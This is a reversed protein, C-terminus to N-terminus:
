IKELDDLYTTEGLLKSYEGILRVGQAGDIIDHDVIFTTCLIKRQEEKGNIVKSIDKIGGIALNLTKDRFPVLWGTQGKMAMGMSTIGVTGAIKKLKFPNKLMKRIIFRRLFKPLLTYLMAYPTTGDRTLQEGQNIVKEQFNRIEETISKVSKSEVNRIVYTYPVKEETKTIIEIVVSIDVNDFVILKRRRKYTNLIKNEMVTQSVCKALWATFSVNFNQQEKIEAIKKLAATIDIEMLGYIQPFSAAVHFYDSLLLKNSSLKKKHYNNYNSM